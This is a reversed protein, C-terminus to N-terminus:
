LYDVYLSYLLFAVLSVPAVLVLIEHFSIVLPSIFTSTWLYLANFFLLLLYIFLKIEELTRWCDEFSRDYM